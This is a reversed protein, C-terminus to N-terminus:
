YKAFPVTRCATNERHGCIHNGQSNDVQSGTPHVIQLILYLRSRGPIPGRLRARHVAGRFTGPEPDALKHRSWSRDLARVEELIRRVQHSRTGGCIAAAQRIYADRQMRRLEAEVRRELEAEVWFALEGPLPQGAQMLARVRSLNGIYDQDLM